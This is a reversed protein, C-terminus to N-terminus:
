EHIIDQIFSTEAPITITFRAGGTVQNELLIKGNLAEVFGKVISLGLGLGKSETQASKYFKNFALNLDKEPFGKGNDSIVIEYNNSVHKVNISIITNNPTHFISNIIINRLIQELFGGDTRFLPLNENANFLVQHERILEENENLIMYVIENIDCWDFRPKLIGSELRNMSLLNEVQSNLRYSATKIEKHLEFVTEKTLKTDKDNITDISGIITAIPTRLEHSLSNLLTNYLKITKEKEEKERGKKEIQKIKYSLVANIIAIVFYMLFMLTDEPKNIHWTFIPPIFFFNWILASLLASLMVPFIDFLMANLSVILLLFLAITQYGVFDSSFFSILTGFAVLGISIVYQWKKYRNKKYFLEM